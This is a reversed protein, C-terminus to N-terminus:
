DYSSNRLGGSDGGSGRRREGEPAVAVVVAVVVAVAVTIGPGVTHKVTVAIRGAGAIEAHVDGATAAGVHTTIAVTIPIAITPATTVVIACRVPASICRIAVARWVGSRRLHAFFLLLRHGLLLRRSLLLHLGIGLLHGLRRQLGGTELRMDTGCIGTKNIRILVDDIDTGFPFEMEIQASGM